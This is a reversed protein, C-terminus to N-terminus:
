DTVKKSLLLRHFLLNTIAIDIGGDVVGSWYLPPTTYIAKM